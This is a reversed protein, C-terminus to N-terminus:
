LPPTEFVFPDAVSVMDYAVLSVEWLLLLLFLDLSSTLLLPIGILHPSFLHSFLCLLSM